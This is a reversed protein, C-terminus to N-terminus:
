SPTLTAYSEVLSIEVTKGSEGRITLRYDPIQGRVTRGIYTQAQVIGVLRRGDFNFSCRLGVFRMPNPHPDADTPM